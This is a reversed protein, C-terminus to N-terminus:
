MWEAAAAHEPKTPDEYLVRVSFRKAPTAATAPGLLLVGLLLVSIRPLVMPAPMIGGIAGAAARGQRPRPLVIPRREPRSIGVPWRGGELSTRTPCAAASSPM